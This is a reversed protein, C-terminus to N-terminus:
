ALQKTKVATLALLLMGYEVLLRSEAISQVLLATLLLLPLLSPISYEAVVRGLQPRDIAAFWARVVTSVILAGFIVLGVIGLQLWIDLWANHAHLQRVGNNSALHDFPEVWPVWYSIWGWGFAPKQSALAIVSDWIELRGTLDERKGLLPLLKTGLMLVTTAGLVAVGLTSWYTITRARPSRARRVLLVVALTAAIAVIAITITASRTFLTTLGALAFWATPVIRKTRDAEFWQLGFAVLGLLAVFGLTSSNGVIGQIRGGDFVEFLENRSWYLLKPIKELSAYDVGPAPVLPLVPQRVFIAVVLEFLLSLGLIFRLATALAVLIEDWNLSIALAIAIVVTVVTSLAGLASFARYHSWAISAIALGVFVVLPYPLISWRWVRRDRALLLVSVAIIAVAIAGFGWWGLLYRWADGALVTFFTFAAFGRRFARSDIM